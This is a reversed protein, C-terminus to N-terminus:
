RRLTLIFKKYNASPQIASSGLLDVRLIRTDGVTAISNPIMDVLLYGVSSNAPITVKRNGAPRFNYNTGEVATSTGRVSFNVDLPSSTQPGVLQVYITDTGRTNLLVTRTSDTSSSTIGRATLNAAAVGRTHNKFEVVSDREYTNDDKPLCGFLSAILGCGFLTYLINKKM